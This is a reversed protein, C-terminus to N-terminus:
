WHAERRPHNVVVRAAVLEDCAHEVSLGFTQCAVVDEVVDSEVPQRVRRDRRRAEVPVGPLKRRHSAEEIRPADLNRHCDAGEGVLDVSRRAAPRFTRIGLKEAIVLVVLAGV